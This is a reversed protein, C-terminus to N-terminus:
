TRGCVCVCVLPMILQVVFKNCLNYYCLTDLKGTIDNDRLYSIVSTLLSVTDDVALYKEQQLVSFCEPSPRCWVFSFDEGDVLDSMLSVRDQM